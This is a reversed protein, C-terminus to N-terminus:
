PKHGTKAPIPVPPTAASSKAVPGTTEKGSVVYKRATGAHALRIELAETRRATRAPRIPKILAALTVPTTAMAKAPNGNTAVLANLTKRANARSAHWGTLASGGSVARVVYIRSFVETYIRVDGPRRTKEFFGIEEIVHNPAKNGGKFTRLICFVILNM